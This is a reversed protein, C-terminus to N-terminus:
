ILIDNCRKKEKEKMKRRLPSGNVKTKADVLNMTVAENAIVVKMVVVIM